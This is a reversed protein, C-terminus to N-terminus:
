NKSFRLSTAKGSTEVIRLVYNGAPLASVSLNAVRGQPGAQTAILRGDLGMVEFRDISRGGIDVFLADRVPTPALTIPTITGNEGITNAEQVIVRGTQTASHGETNCSYNYIGPITFTFSYTWDGNDPEGSGFSEPNGPFFFSGGDVNHTGSVNNWTVMDGVEINLVSPSYYPLTPGLTSGGVEVFHTTQACLTIPLAALFLLTTKM